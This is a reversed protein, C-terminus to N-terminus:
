RYISKIRGWTSNQVQSPLTFYLTLHPRVSPDPAERSDFRRATNPESEDGLITWGFNENAGTIWGRVDETLQEARWTYSGAGLVDLSDSEEAAFDGGPVSWFSTPYFTHLWTADGAQAPAGGGGASASGGEGWDALLRHLHLTRPELDSSSAMRLEIVASDLHAGPPLADVLDFVLVARRIRGQSNRGCFIGTGAGNSTDGEADEFLTNDHVPTLTVSQASTLSPILALSVLLAMRQRIM